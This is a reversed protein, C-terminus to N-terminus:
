YGDLSGSSGDSKRGTSFIRDSKSTSVSVTDQTTEAPSDVGLTVLGKAVNQLFRIADNYRNRRDEGAGQRRSFLNYICIDVSFKRVIDPVPSFPVAYREACYGNIEADADAIARDTVTTDVAGTDSDDTLQILDSEPIQEQIDALICYAM